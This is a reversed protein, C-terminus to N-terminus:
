FCSSSCCCCFSDSCGPFKGGLGHSIECPNCFKELRRFKAPNCIKVAQSVIGVAKAKKVNKTVNKLKGSNDKM